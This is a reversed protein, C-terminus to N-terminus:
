GALDLKDLVEKNVVHDPVRGQLLAVISQAAVLAMRKRASLTKSGTHPLALVKDRRVLELSQGQPPESAQCDLGAGALHGSDLAAILAAEDVLGGRATNILYSGEKMLGLFEANVLHHNEATLPLHLTVADAQSLLAARDAPEAGLARIQADDIYPDHVLVQMKFGRARRVVETGIRGCGVLGLTMVGLDEGVPVDYTDETKVRQDGLRLSRVMGLLLAFTLDAVADAMAGPTNTVVIGRQTCYDLDVKDFGVGNRAIIKLQTARDMTDANLNEGGALLADFSDLKTRTEEDPWGPQPHRVEIAFGAREVFERAQSQGQFEIEVSSLIRPQAM